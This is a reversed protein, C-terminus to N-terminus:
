AHQIGDIFKIQEVPVNEVTGDPWEVIATSYNGPGSDFAEYGVGFEHFTAVGKEQLTWRTQGTVKILHSVMVKRM